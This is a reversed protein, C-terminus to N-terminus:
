MIRFPQVDATQVAVKVAGDKVMGLRGSTPFSRFTRVREEMCHAQQSYCCSFDHSGFFSFM